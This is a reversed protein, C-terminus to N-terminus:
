SSSLPYLGKPTDAETGERTTTGEGKLPQQSLGERGSVRCVSHTKAKRVSLMGGVAMAPACMRGYKPTFQLSLLM